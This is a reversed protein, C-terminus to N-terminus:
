PNGGSLYNISVGKTKLKQLLIRLAKAIGLLEIVYGLAVIILGLKMKESTVKTTMAQPIDTLFLYAGFTILMFGLIMLIIPYGSNPAVESIAKVGIIRANPSIKGDFDSVLIKLTISDKPNLLTPKITILNAGAELEVLLGDPEKQTVSASLIKSNEGTKITIPLEYDSSSIPLNGSNTLKIVLFCIDKTENGEYLVQLKGELEERVTLLQNRSLIEYTISKKRQQFFYILIMGVLTLSAILFQWLPDRLPELM